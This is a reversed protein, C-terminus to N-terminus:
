RFSALNGCGYGSGVVSFSKGFGLQFPVLRRQPRRLGYVIRILQCFPQVVM